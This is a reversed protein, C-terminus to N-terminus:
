SRRRRRSAVGLGVLGLGLLAFTGPEPTPQFFFPDSSFLDWGHLGGVATLSGGTTFFSNQALFDHFLGFAGPGQGNTNLQDAWPSGDLIAEMCFSASGNSPLGANFTGQITIGPTAVIGTDFLLSVVRTGETATQFTPLGGGSIGLKSVAFDIDTAGQFFRTPSTPAVENYLDMRGGTANLVTSGGGGAGVITVDIGYFIGTLEEPAAATGPDVYYVGSSLEQLTNVRLIGFNDGLYFGTPAAGTVGDWTSLTGAGSSDYYFGSGVNALGPGTYLLEWNFYQGTSPGAQLNVAMASTSVLGVLAMAIFVRKMFEELQFIENDPGAPRVLDSSERKKGPVV